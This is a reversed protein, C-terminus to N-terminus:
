FMEDDSERIAQARARRQAEFYEAVAEESGLTGFWCKGSSNEDSETVVNWVREMETKDLTLGRSLAKDTSPTVGEEKLFQPFIWFAKCLKLVESNQIMLNM